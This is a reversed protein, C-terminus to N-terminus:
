PYTQISIHRYPLDWDRIGTGSTYIWPLQGQVNPRIQHLLALFVLAPSLPPKLQCHYLFVRHDALFPPGSLLLIYALLKRTFGLIGPVTLAEISLERGM